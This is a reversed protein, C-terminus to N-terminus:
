ITIEVVKIFIVNVSNGIDLVLDMLLEFYNEKNLLKKNGIFLLELISSYNYKSLWM